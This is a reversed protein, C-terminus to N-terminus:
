REDAGLDPTAGRPDGDFDTTVSPIAVGQDLAMTATPLLHLDGTTPDAFQGIPPMLQDHDVAGRASDRLVIETAINNRAEILSNAFRYEIANGMAAGTRVVTNHFLKVGLAQEVGIGSDFAGVDAYIMNNVIVGDYNGTYPDIKDAAHPDDAYPREVLGTGDGLGLGIGRACNVITNREITQDRGTQWFHIAHEALSAVDCYIGEFRNQTVHWGRAAHADIGGTYCPYSANDPNTPVYARGPATM